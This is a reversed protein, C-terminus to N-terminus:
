NSVPCPTLASEPITAYQTDPLQFCSRVREPVAPLARLAADLRRKLDLQNKVPQRGICRHNIENGHDVPTSALGTKRLWGDMGGDVLRQTLRRGLFGTGGTVLIKGGAGPLRNAM